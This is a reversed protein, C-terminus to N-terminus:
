ELAQVQRWAEAGVVTLSSLAKDRNQAIEVPRPEDPEASMYGNIHDRTSTIQDILKQQDPDGPSLMLTINNAATRLERHLRGLEDNRSKEELPSAPVRLLDVLEEADAFYASVRERLDQLWRLREATVLSVKLKSNELRDQRDLNLKNTKHQQLAMLGVGLLTFIGTTIATEVEFM